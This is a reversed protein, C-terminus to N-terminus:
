DNKNKGKMKDNKINRAQVYVDHLMRVTDKIDFGKSKVIDYGKKREDDSVVANIVKEAWICPSCELSLMKNNRTILVEKSITDSFICPIGNTQAEIAVQPLGEFLSPMLFVDLASYLREMDSLRNIFIVHESVGLEQAKIRLDNELEGQGKLILISDNNICMIEKFIDLAFKQNKQETFRGIVGVVFSNGSINYQKRFMDRDTQNYKFKDIDIGVPIVLADEGYKKGFMYKGAIRSCALRIDSWRNIFPIFLQHSVFSSLNGGNHSHVVLPINYKRCYPYCYVVESAAGTQLHICDFDHHEKYFKRLEKITYLPKKRFSTPIFFFHNEGYFKSIEERFLCTDYGHVLYYYEVREKDSFLTTNRIFTEVGGMVNTHGIILIKLIDKNM